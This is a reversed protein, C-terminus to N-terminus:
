GNKIEIRNAKCDYIMTLHRNWNTFEDCTFELKENCWKKFEIFDMEIPSQIFEIDRLHTIVKGIVYYNALIFSGDPSVTLSRYDDNSELEIVDGAMSDLQFLYDSTVVLVLNYKTSIAVKGGAGRFHGCWESYDENTFKVFSWSLSNWANENDYIREIYEGSYPLNIIEANIIM